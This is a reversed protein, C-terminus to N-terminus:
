VKGTWYWWLYRLLGLQRGIRSPQLVLRYAWELNLKCWLAPARKVNGTYVDYTGGVGMYFCDPHAQRLRQILLEQRPSGMAVSVIRPKTHKLQDILAAEDSFYGDVAGALRTGAAILKDRTQALVEPKAGIIFVPVQYHAARLMLEQWLECGPIREVHRGLRRRMAKVVGIGDAYRIDAAEIVERLQPNRSASLVKEPNIAVASGAFVPGEAPVIYGLLAAMNNFAAVNIVGIKVQEPMDTQTADPM